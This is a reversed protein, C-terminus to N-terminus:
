RLARQESRIAELLGDPDDTGIRFVRGSRMRLEVADLGGVNFMWGNPVWRIGWGLYWRNRVPEADVVGRLDIRRVPWGLLFRAEVVGKGVTVTLRRLSGILVAAAGAVAWVVFAGAGPDDTTTIVVGVVVLLAIAVVFAV